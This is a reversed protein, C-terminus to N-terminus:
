PSALAVLCEADRSSAAMRNTHDVFWHQNCPLKRERKIRALAITARALVNTAKAATVQLQHPTCITVQEPWEILVLPPSGAGQARRPDRGVRTIKGRALETSDSM